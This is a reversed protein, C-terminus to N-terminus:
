HHSNEHISALGEGFLMCFDAHQPMDAGAYVVFSNSSSSIM